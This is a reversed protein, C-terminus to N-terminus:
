ERWVRQLGIFGWSVRRMKENTVTTIILMITILIFVIITTIIIRILVLIMIIFVIITTSIIRIVVLIM